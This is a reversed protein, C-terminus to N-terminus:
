YGPLLRVALDILKIGAAPVLIGGVGYLLLNRNLARGLDTTRYPVGLLALPILIAIVVAGFIVTSLIASAPSHLGLVDLRELGPVVGVFLIPFLVVYRVLDNAITFTTLAGRTAMQRRGIEVIELIKTPDDDLVIMNAAERAAATATSMSVGVDAQALAPADNTGDGTMAVFHGAAQEQKILQLKAEPMADGVHEEIGAEAAIAAATVPNDGTVMITRIGAARLQGIRHAVSSKVVDKLEIVGLVRGHGQVPQEAVVLPTGGARAIRTTCARLEKAVARTQQNGAQKLWALVASEAGKRFRVDELDRGSMRTHASFPVSRGPSGQAAVGAEAQALALTSRGEPTPDDLSSLAAARVLEEMTTGAVPVFSTARRDGVTITGTKDLLVTTIDGATELAHASDLLVNRQLLQYMGAIGTVSLLAAIETPLLCAVLAVLVPISLPAAFPVAVANLTLALLLFSLSFSSLLASLALETPAKQRRAGVALDIMRDVVTDGTRVSVRVVVRDSLVRTGGTVGSREGGSERIVPASEGTIASEDVTTIGWVVEGDAPILGGAGVVVVDGPRLESSGVDRVAAQQASPDHRADYRTVLQATTDERMLRLTATQSRGRGEALSEAFNAALLTLWLWLALARGLLLGVVFVALVVMVLIAYLGSGVGGPSVEGLVMNVILVMGGLATYSGHMSNAAGGSTGTTATAFLTSGVVGFRQEKGESAAGALEPATGAGSLEALTLATLVLLFLVVMTAVVMRGARLDAVMRGFTRTMSVPIVLLLFVQLLNTWPSPNEFPHASNANYFGGGNTGLMKVAEQSAVPGGPVSATGGTVTTVETFGHLNQVTGAGVLLVATLVAFPLLVRLHVRVVDVWFNGLTHVGRSALGRVLAVAVAMGVGASVFNQVTLVTMQVLHGVTQEPSYAQWNTNAVFSVATNFALDAPVPPLGLSLPLLHQLRQLAYALVLGVLSLSLVARLYAQWSQEGRPDVGLLQYLRREMRWDHPSSFVWALYDGLPRHVLLLATGVTVVSAVASLIQM